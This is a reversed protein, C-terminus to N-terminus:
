HDSIIACQRGFRRPVCSPSLKCNCSKGSGNGCTKWCLLATVISLQWMLHRQNVVQSQGGRNKDGQLHVRDRLRPFLLGCCRVDCYLEKTVTHIDIYMTCTCNLLKWGGCHVGRANASVERNIHWTFPWAIFRTLCTCRAHVVLPEVATTKLRRWNQAQLVSHQRNCGCCRIIFM